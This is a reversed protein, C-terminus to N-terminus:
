LTASRAHLERLLALTSPDRDSYYVYNNGEPVADKQAQAGATFSEALRDTYEDVLADYLAVKKDSWRAPTHLRVSVGSFMMMSEFPSGQEQEYPQISVTYERDYRKGKVKLYTNFVRGKNDTYTAENYKKTTM